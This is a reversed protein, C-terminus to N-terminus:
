QRWQLHFLCGLSTRVSLFPGYVLLCNVNGTASPSLLCYDTHNLEARMHAEKKPFNKLQLKELTKRRLFIWCSPSNLSKNKSHSSTWPRRALLAERTVTREPGSGPSCTSRSGFVSGLTEECSQGDSLDEGIDAVHTFRSGADQSSAGKLM